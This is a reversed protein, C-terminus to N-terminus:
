IDIQEQLITLINETIKSNKKGQNKKITQNIFKQPPVDECSFFKELYHKIEDSTFHICEFLKLQQENFIVKKLRIMDLVLNIYVSTDFFAQVLRIKDLANEVDNYKSKDKDLTMLVNCWFSKFIGIKIEEEKVKGKKGDDNKELIIDNSEKDTTNKIKKNVLNDETFFNNNTLSPSYERRKYNHDNDKLQIIEKDKSRSNNTIDNNTSKFIKPPNGVLKSNKNNRFMRDKLVFNFIFFEKSFSDFVFTLVKGIVELANFVGLFSALTSDLQEYERELFSVKSSLVFELYYTNSNSRGFGAPASGGSKNNEGGSGTNDGNGSNGGSGTNDGIGSDGGSGTNDGSGTDGGSGPGGDSGPNNGTNSGGNDNTNDLRRTTSDDDSDSESIDKYFDYALFHTKNPSILYPILSSQTTINYNKFYITAGKYTNTLTFSTVESQLPNKMKLPNPTYSKIFVKVDQIQNIAEKFKSNEDDSCSDGDCTQMLVFKVSNTTEGLPSIQALSFTMNNYKEPDICYTKELGGKVYASFGLQQSFYENDCEEFPYQASFSDSSANVQTLYAQFISTDMEMMSSSSKFFFFIEFHEYYKFEADDLESYSIDYMVFSGDRNKFLMIVLYFLYILAISIVLFTRFGGAVTHYTENSGIYWQLPEGYIDIKRMIYQYTSQRKEELNKQSM